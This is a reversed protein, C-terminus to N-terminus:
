HQYFKHGSGMAMFHHLLIHKYQKWFQFFLSAPFWYSVLAAKIEATFQYRLLLHVEHNASPLCFSGHLHCFHISYKSFFFIFFNSRKKKKNKTQSRAFLGYIKRGGRTCLFSLLVLVASRRFCFLCVLFSRVFSSPSGGIQKYVRTM